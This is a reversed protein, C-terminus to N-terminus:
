ARAQARSRRAKRGRGTPRAQAPTSEDDTQEKTRKVRKNKWGTNETPELNKFQELAEVREQLRHMEALLTGFGTFTKFAQQDISWNVIINSYNLSTSLSSDGQHGLVTNLWISKDLHRKSCAAVKEHFLEWSVAASIKRAFHTGISWHRQKALAFSRPVFKQLLKSLKATSWVCGEIKRDRFSQLTIGNLERFKRVCEVVDAAPMFVCPKTIVRSPMYRLDDSGVFPNIQASRDKVCGIQVLLFEQNLAEVPTEIGDEEADGLIVTKRKEAKIYDAYTLFNISPDIIEMKRAASACIAALLLEASETKCTPKSDRMQLVKRELDAYNEVFVDKLKEILKQECVASYAQSTAKDVKLIKRVLFMRPSTEQERALPDEGQERVFLMKFARTFSTYMVTRTSVLPYLVSILASLQQLRAEFEVLDTQAFSKMHLCVAPLLNDSKIETKTEPFHLCLLRIVTSSRQRQPRREKQEENAFESEEGSECDSQNKWGNIQQPQVESRILDLTSPQCAADLFAFM